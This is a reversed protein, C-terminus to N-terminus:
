SADGLGDCYREISEPFSFECYDFGCESLAMDYYLSGFAKRAAGVHRCAFKALPNLLGTLHVHRGQARALESVAHSTPMYERNQPWFMGSMGHDIIQVIFEALNEVYLVSRHNELSPFVPFKRAIKALQPFNGKCGPGYIMPCRLVAVKFDESALKELGKEAELKSRGYFNAPNAPTDATIPGADRVDSDGYVISSSMFVFQGVGASKAHRAVEIALDRNVRYYLDEMSPDTSVHAIGAVHYIADFESFDFERWAADQVDLEEVFFRSPEREFRRRVWGGVYSGAGTILVRKM